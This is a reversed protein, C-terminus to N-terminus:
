IIGTAPDPADDALRKLSALARGLSRRDPAQSLSVRVANPAPGTATNFAQAPVVGVGRERAAAAFAEATWADPLELFIHFSAPHSHLEFGALIDGALRQRASTERRQWSVLEAAAGSTLWHRGVEATLPPRCVSMAYLADLLRAHLRRPALLWALRLGPALCKSASAIYLTREPALMVIPPPRDEILYGYVDDEVIILDRRRAVDVIQQRRELGMVVNTPNQLTPVVVLLRADTKAVTRELAEASLGQDDLAVAQLPRRSFRAVNHLGPYTLEEVLVGNDDALCAFSAALAQQAGGFILVDAAEAEIGIRGMWKAGARRDAEHGGTPAYDVLAEPSEHDTLVQLTDRLAEGHPGFTPANKSLDLFGNRNDSAIGGAPAARVFTGRGVHSGILRRRSLVQYARTVTGVTVGLRFALDRQPPLRAEPALEGSDIEGAIADAIALYRPGGHRFIYNTDITM